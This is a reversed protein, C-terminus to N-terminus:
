MQPIKENCITSRVVEKIRKERTVATKALKIWRLVNRRYSPSYNEFNETSGLHENLATVLDKPTALADVDELYDWLGRSKSEAIAELGSSHMQNENELRSAREKYSKSWHYVRRPGILQMTRDGDLKRRIGDIWGFCLLQDLIEDVSVYKGIMNKKYTVLWISEQQTYNAELWERLQLASTIEVKEFNETDIM